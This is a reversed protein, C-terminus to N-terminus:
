SARTPSCRAPSRSSSGSASRSGRAASASSRRTATRSGDIFEDAGVARAAAISRRATASPGGSRSTRPSPARSSSARRRSSGSSGACRSRRRRRAPRHRRDHDPGRDPRLLARAAERDDVQRRGHPRRARRDDRRSTSTSATCCRPGAATPSASTRSRSAARSRPRARRRRPTRAGRAGRRAPRHDQRARRGGLPVHQLAALAAAGPRLLEDPLRPVRRAHRDLDRRPLRALRRLRARGRDRGVLPLRRVPLLPREPRGDAHELRPLRRSVQASTRAARRARAHVVAPRADRRHGRGADRHGRRADRARAPVRPGLAQPVLRDRADDGADRDADRARAALRPLLPAVATGVLTLTNQVLSTVGDTVLQDLAEVDNTLRSIIVGARNREYFGLSLRQLHRFLHNRLDALMREGTWGTFYTQAYTFRSASCARPSSRSSSGASCRAHRRRTVEDVARGVLYPPALAVATAGLLSVIALATRASTRAPSGTSRACGAGRRRGRGTRSRRGGGRMLHGGPQHVRM